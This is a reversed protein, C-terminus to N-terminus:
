AAVRRTFSLLLDDMPFLTAFVRIEESRDTVTHHMDFNASLLHIMLMLNMVAYTQGLCYHPGTGFVLWNKGQEEADGEIWREPAWEDAGGHSGYAENDHLSRWLSPIIMSGKPATYEPTIPFPKKVKYPVMTVPPRYRLTEKVVARTYAMNDLDDIQVAGYKGYRDGMIQKGEARVKELADPRDALLQLLWSCASSTADQSAFLFTFLTMSIEFDTFGRLVQAPKEESPVSEGREIRKRYQESEMMQLIWRDLICEAKAGSSKMRIKAKAACSAFAELVKDAAKKGYWTKTFPIIIPFNVLEMAATINYYDDAIEKVQAHSMYHGVFTRCSLACMLERLIYVSKEGGKDPGAGSKEKRAKESSQLFSEFYQEYVEQQGPLYGTLAQRTFLGNLGKRYEVHAKGDLFVWNEPRLLKSAVEVVCPKVYAPANFIQRAVDRTSGMIVFIHFVSVCSLPASMWQKHYAEFKPDVSQLFPGIFPMKWAPGSLVGKNRWYAMQDYVVAAALLTFLVSWINVGNTINSLFGTQAKAGVLRDLTASPMSTTSANFAEMISAM